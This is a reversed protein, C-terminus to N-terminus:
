CVIVSGCCSRSNAIRGGSGIVVGVRCAYAFQGFVHIHLFSLTGNTPCGGVGVSSTSSQLFARPTVRNNVTAFFVLDQVPLFAPVLLLAHGLLFLSFKLPDDELTIHYYSTKMIHQLGRHWEQTCSTATPVSPSHWHADIRGITGRGMPDKLAVQNIDM